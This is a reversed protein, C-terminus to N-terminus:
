ALLRDFAQSEAPANRIAHELRFQDERSHGQFTSIFTAAYYFTAPYFRPPINYKCLPEQLM